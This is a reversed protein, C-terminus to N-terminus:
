GFNKVKNIQDTFFGGLDVANVATLVGVVLIAAVAVMGVYELVGAGEDSDRRLRSRILMELVILTAM